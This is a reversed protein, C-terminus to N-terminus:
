KLIENKYNHTCAHVVTEALLIYTDSIIYLDTHELSAKHKCPSAKYNMASEKTLHMMSSAHHSPSINKGKEIKLHSTM